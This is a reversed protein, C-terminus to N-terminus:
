EDVAKKRNAVRARAVRRTTEVSPTIYHRKTTQINSHQLHESTDELLAGSQRAETAGGHRAQMNWVGKPVSCADALRRYVTNYYRRQFPNGSDDLAVPGHREAVPVAALAQMFLPYESLDFIGQKSNKSRRLDLVMDPLFDEYQLGPRWVKKGRVISNEPLGRPSEIREWAGIVDVQAITLEFQAAVGLALSRFRRNGRKLGEEVIARAYAFTMPLQQPKKQKWEELLHRPPSLTMRELAQVLQLCAPLGLEVGYNLLISLMTRVCKRALSLRPLGGPKNPKAVENFWRRLDQGSLRDIRRAGFARDLTACWEDYTRRTNQGINRYPSEKDTQYCVILSHLTGDYIPRPDRGGDALWQKMELTLVACREALRNVEALNDLDGHLRVTRPVYGLRRAEKSAVWYAERRGGRERIEFGPADLDIRAQGVRLPLRKRAM